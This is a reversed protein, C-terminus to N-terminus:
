HIDLYLTFIAGSGPPSQVLIEGEHADVIRKVISLGLGTSKEEGTPQASLKQFTGFLKKQDEVSLGPGQDTVQFMVRGDEVGSRLTVMSGPPSFKIANTLLNDMVQSIRAKDFAVLPTAALESQLTIQKKDSSFKLMEARVKALEALDEPKKNLEFRGSEIVSVDLLNDLLKLMQHGVDNITQYFERKEEDKLPIDILLNSLGCVVSIPNRLDHAAMGLFHNKLENLTLLEQKQRQLALHTQIRALVVGSHFPKRIFDVAGVELGRTEDETSEMSTVFIVPIEALKEDAKLQKCVEFGDMEPMLIDLLILNISPDDQVRKIALEGSKAVLTKYHPQLLQVLLDINSKEDDVILIKTPEIHM